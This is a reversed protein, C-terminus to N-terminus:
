RPPDGRWAFSNVFNGIWSAIEVDAASPHDTNDPTFQEYPGDAAAILALGNKEAVMVLVRVRTYSSTQAQPYFDDVEGYGPQYGVMANPIRYSRTAGPYLKQIIGAAIEDPTQDGAPMGLLVAQGEVNPFRMVVGHAQVTSDNPPYAVSFGGDAPSFRPYTAVPPGAVGAPHLLDHAASPAAPPATTPAARATPSALQATTTPSDPIVLSAVGGRAQPGGPTGVPPRIPPRGCHPACPFQAPPPTSLVSVLVGAAVVLLLGVGLVVFLRIHSTHRVPPAAYTGAPMACTPWQRPTAPDNPANV